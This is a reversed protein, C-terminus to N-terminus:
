MLHLRYRVHGDFAVISDYLKRATANNEDTHWYLRQWGKAKALAMLDAILARGLGRGRAQPSVFLDELYCDEGIVWSSPHHQHIAFGMAVGDVEAVRMKMPSAPDMLRNWTHATIAPDLPHDYFQLYAQWLLEWAAQDAPIADRIDPM